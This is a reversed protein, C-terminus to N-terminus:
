SCRRITYVVSTPGARGLLNKIALNLRINALYYIVNYLSGLQRRIFSVASSILLVSVGGSSLPQGFSYLM